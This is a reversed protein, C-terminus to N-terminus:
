DLLYISDLLAGTGDTGFTAITMMALHKNCKIAVSLQYMTIGQIVATTRMGDFKQGDIEM